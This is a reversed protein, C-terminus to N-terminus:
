SGHMMVKGAELFREMPDDDEFLSRQAAIAQVRALAAPTLGFEVAIKHMAEREARAISLWPNHIPYGNPSKVLLATESLKKEAEVWRAYTQCFAEFMAHYVPSMLGAAVLEPGLRRWERKAEDSLHEPARPLAVKPRARQPNIPRKGPNGTLVRVNDPLPKRGRM